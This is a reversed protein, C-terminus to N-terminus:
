NDLHIKISQINVRWIGNSWVISSSKEKIFPGRCIGTTWDMQTVRAGDQEEWHVLRLGYGNQFHLSIRHNKTASQEQQSSDITRLRVRYSHSLDECWHENMDLESSKSFNARQIHVIQLGSAECNDAQLTYNRSEELIPYLICQCADPALSCSSSESLFLFFFRSIAWSKGEPARRPQTLRFSVSHSLLSSRVVGTVGREVKRHEEQNRSIGFEFSGYITIGKGNAKGSAELRTFM